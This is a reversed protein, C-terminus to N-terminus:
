VLGVFTKATDVISQRYPIWEGGDLVKRAKSSDVYLEVQGVIQSYDSKYGMGPSGVPIRELAKGDGTFEERLIDAIAQPHNASGSAIYREGNTEEPHEISYRLLQAVDRVDVVQPLGAMIPQIDPVGSFVQWISQITEGVASATKPPLLPPGIVFSPYKLAPYVPNVATMTFSPKKDKQFDWFAREAAVKSASYIVPGPTETGKAECVQEAYDNWDKETFTYPPQASSKVAAISSMVVITKLSPGVNALASNLIIKTGNIAAHLIPAPDRFGFSVPSALHAIATVGKVAEDFAGDVTIDSVEVTTFIGADAYKKLPGEILERVSTQKRVTGRVSYGHDLLHKAAVAAIYGNVGTILILGKSM